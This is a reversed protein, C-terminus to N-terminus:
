QLNFNLYSYPTDSVDQIVKLTKTFLTRQIDNMEGDASVVEFNQEQALQLFAKAVKRQFEPNEYREEGYGPRTSSKDESLTLLFVLDPKLLGNEPQKCWEMSM